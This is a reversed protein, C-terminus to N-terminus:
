TRGQRSDGPVKWRCKWKGSKQLAPQSPAPAKCLSSTGDAPFTWAAPSACQADNLCNTRVSQFCNPAYATAANHRFRGAVRQDMKDPAQQATTVAMRVDLGKVTGLQAALAALGM